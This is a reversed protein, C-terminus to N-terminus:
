ESLIESIKAKLKISILKNATPTLHLKDSQYLNFHTHGCQRLIERCDIINFGLASLEELRLGYYDPFMKRWKPIFTNDQHPYSIFLVRTNNDAAEKVIRDMIEKLLASGEETGKSFNIKKEISEYIHWVLRSFPMIGFKQFEEFKSYYGEHPKLWKLLESNDFLSDFVHHPPHHILDLEDKNLEFRPKLFPMGHAEPHWFPIYHNILGGTPDRPLEVVLIDPQFKFLKERYALYSQDISYRMVGFNICELTSDEILASISNEVAIHPGGNILSSGIFLVRNREGPNVTAPSTSRSGFEDVKWKDHQSFPRNHWGLLDDRINYPDKDAIFKETREIAHDHLYLRLYLYEPIIHPLIFIAILEATLYFVFTYFVVPAKRRIGLLQKWVPKSQKINKMGDNM